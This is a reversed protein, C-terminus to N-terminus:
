APVYITANVTYSGMFFIWFYVWVKMYTGAYTPYPSKEYTYSDSWDEDVGEDLDGIDYEDSYWEHYIDYHNGGKRVVSATHYTKYFYGDGFRYYGTITVTFTGYINNLYDSDYETSREESDCILYVVVNFDPIHDASAYAAPILAMFSLVVAILAVILVNRRRIRRVEKRRTAQLKTRFSRIIYLASSM